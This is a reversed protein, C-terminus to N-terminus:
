KIGHLVLFSPVYFYRANVSPKKMELFFFSLFVSSCGATNEECVRNEVINNQQQKKLILKNM